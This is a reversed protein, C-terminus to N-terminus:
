PPATLVGKKRALSLALDAFREPDEEHGLHGLAPLIELGAEPVLAQVRRAVAVPVTLDGECAVLCLEAGLRPLDRELAALDWNAMMGLVGAVHRPSQLLFRYQAVASPGLTSGTKAILNEVVGARTAGHAFVRPVLSLGALVRALPAFIHGPLGQFPLLAGGLSILAAPAILGDLRMRSLIAAGASHGLVVQPVVGLQRLLAATASAMGPLSLQREGPMSSFGHGPLDPAVVRFHPSLRPLMGGWSHNAAGTGHLLLLAPGEGAEQVHWRIGGASVFRSSAANPWEARMRLWDSEASAM